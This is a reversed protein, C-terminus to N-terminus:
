AEITQHLPHPSSGGRPSSGSLVTGSDGDEGCDRHRQVRKRGKRRLQLEPLLPDAPLLHPSTQTGDEHMRPMHLPYAQPLPMHFGLPVGATPPWQGPFAHPHHPMGPFAFMGPQFPINARLHGPLAWPAHTMPLAQAPPLAHLVDGADDDSAGREPVPPTITRPDGGLVLLLQSAPPKDAVEGRECRRYWDPYSTLTNHAGIFEQRVGFFRFSGRGVDNTPDMPDELSLLHHKDHKKPIYRGGNQVSICNKQFDFGEDSGYYHLFEILARGVGKIPDDSDDQDSEGSEPDSGPEQTGSAAEDHSETSSPPTIDSPTTESPTAADGSVPTQTSSDSAADGAAESPTEGPAPEAAAEEDRQPAPDGRTRRLKGFRLQLFSFVLLYLSYSSLGGSYPNNFLRMRLFSKLVIILPRAKPHAQLLKKVNDASPVASKVNFSIDGLLGTEQDQFRVIPVKTKTIAQADIHRQRLARELEYVLDDMSQNSRCPANSVTFDVDSSPLCLGAAWSGFVHVSADPWLRAVVKSIKRRTAERAAEEHEELAMYRVFADIEADLAAEPELPPQSPRPAWPPLPQGAQRSRKGGGGGSRNETWEHQNRRNGNRGERARGHHGGGRGGGGGGYGNYLSRQGRGRREAM